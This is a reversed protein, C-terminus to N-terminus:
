KKLNQKILRKLQKQEEISMYVDRRFMKGEADVENPDCFQIKIERNSQITFHLSRQGWEFGMDDESYHLKM